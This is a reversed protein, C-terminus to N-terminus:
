KLLEELDEKYFMYEKGCFHCKIEAKEQEEIIMKIEESGLSILGREFRDKNCDCYYKVLKEEAFSVNYGDFLLLLIEELSKGEELLITISSVETIRKEIHEILNESYGPLLQIIFGGAKEISGDPNVLVGLAVVSPVQESAMFYYTFDEAIEGSVIEVTGIYPHKLGLDKIITLTGKGIASSVDLKGNEKLPIYIDPNYIDAKLEGKVNGVVLINEAIGDGKIQATIKDKESKLMMTMMAVATMTRGLAASATPSTGHIKQSERIMETTDAAFLRIPQGEITASIMYDM